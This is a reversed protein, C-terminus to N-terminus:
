FNMDLQFSIRNDINNSILNNGSSLFREKPKYTESYKLSITLSKLVKYRAIFYWRVGEGFMPLNTMVGTLDNEYEYVASNFSDTNFFIIRGYLVLDRLGSFRIDQFVLM